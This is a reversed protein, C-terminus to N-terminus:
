QDDYRDKKMDEPLITLSFNCSGIKRREEGLYQHHIMNVLKETDLPIGSRGVAGRLADRRVLRCCTALAQLQHRVYRM